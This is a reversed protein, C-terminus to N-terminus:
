GDSLLPFGGGFDRLAFTPLIDFQRNLPMALHMTIALIARRNETRSACNHSNM